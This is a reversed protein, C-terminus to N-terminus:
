ARRPLNSIFGQILEQMDPDSMFASHLTPRATQPPAQSAPAAGAIHASKVYEALTSLLLERPVPKSLYDSCGAALCKARDDSMAHATLAIIPVKIGLRRLEATATYGDMEPMQMDMLIADFAGGHAM